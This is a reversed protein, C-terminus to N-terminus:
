AMVWTGRMSIISFGTANGALKVYDGRKATAATNSLKQGGSGAALGCGGSMVESGNPDVEILCAGSLGANVITVEFGSLLTAIATLAAVVTTTDIYIIKGSDTILVTYNASKLIRNVTNPGFEDVECPRFEVEMKTASVYRTVVGVYSNGTSTGAGVFTLTADDSAYVPQGVDTIFGVLDVILRYHGTRLQINLAGAAGTTNDVKSVSHGVFKDGAVLPRGYGSGNDGVMAGEYVIDTAIIPISNQDGQVVAVPSNVALTAM